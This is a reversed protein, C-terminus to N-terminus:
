NAEKYIYERTEVLKNTARDYLEAKIPYNSENYSYKWIHDLSVGGAGTLKQSRANNTSFTKWKWPYSTMRYHKDDYDSYEITSLLVGAVNIETKLINVGKNDFTYKNTSQGEGDKYSTREIVMNDRYEFSVSVVAHPYTWVGSIPRESSGYTYTERYLEKGGESHAVNTLYGKDNYTFNAVHMGSGDKPHIRYTAVRNDDNYTFTLETAGNVKEEILLLSSGKIIGSYCPSDEDEPDCDESKSCSYIAVTMLLLGITKIIAKKM